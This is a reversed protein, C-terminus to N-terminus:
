LTIHYRRTVTGEHPLKDKLIGGNSEITKISPVNNDDCTLLVENLGMQKAEKLCLALAKTAYNKGRESPIVDYGIHGGRVSLKETLRHRLSIRGCYKENEDIIWYQTDPVRGEKINIENHSDMLSNILEDFQEDIRGLDFKLYHDTSDNDSGHKHFEKVADIYTSLYKREPLKLSIM